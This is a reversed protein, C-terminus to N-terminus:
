AVERKIKRLYGCPNYTLLFRECDRDIEFCDTESLYQKIAVMPGLNSEEAPHHGLTNGDEVIMYCGPTVLNGYYRMEEIVHEYHHDSDLIAMIRNSNPSLGPCINQDLYEKLERSTSDAQVYVLRRHSPQGQWLVKDITIVIGRNMIECMDALFLASGGCATGTELIVDPQTKYIIEQYVWLDMPNKWCKTGRWRPMERANPNLGDGPSLMAEFLLRNFAGMVEQKTLFEM